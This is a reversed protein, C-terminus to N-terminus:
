ASDVPQKFKLHLVAGGQDEALVRRSEPEHVLHGVDAWLGARVRDGPM